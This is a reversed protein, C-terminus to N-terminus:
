MKINLVHIPNFLKSEGIENWNGKVIHIINTDYRNVRIDKANEFGELVELLDKGTLIDVQRELIKCRDLVKPVVEMERDKMKEFFDKVNLRELSLIREDVEFDLM